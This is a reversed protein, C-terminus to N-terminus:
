ATRMKKTQFLLIEHKAEVHELSAPVCPEPTRRWTGDKQLLATTVAENSHTHRDLKQTSKLFESGPGRSQVDLVKAM